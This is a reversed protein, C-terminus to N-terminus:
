VTKSKSSLFNNKVKTFKNFLYTFLNFVRIEKIYIDKTLLYTIYWSHREYKTRNYITRYETNSIEKFYKFAMFPLILFGIITWPKWLVLILFSSMIAIINTYATTTEIVINIPRIGIQQDARDILDYTNSNEFDIYKFNQTERLLQCNLVLYLYERYKNQYYTFLLNTGIELISFLTFWILIYIIVTSSAKIQIANILAQTALMTAFPVLGQITALIFIYALYKKKFSLLLKWIDIISNTKWKQM